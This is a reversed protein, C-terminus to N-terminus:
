GDQQAWIQLRVDRTAFAEVPVIGACSVAGCLDARDDGITRRALRPHEAGLIDAGPPRVRMVIPRAPHLAARRGCPHRLRLGDAEGFEAAGGDVPAGVLGIDEEVRLGGLAERRIERAAPAIIRNLVGIQLRAVQMPAVRGVVRDGGDIAAAHHMHRFTGGPSPIRPWVGKEGFQRVDPGISRVPPQAVPQGSPQPRHRQRCQHTVEAQARSHWFGQDVHGAKPARDLAIGDCSQFGRSGRDARQGPMEPEIGDLGFAHDAEDHAAPRGADRQGM